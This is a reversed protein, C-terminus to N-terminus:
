VCLMAPLTHAELFFCLGSRLRWAGWAMIIAECMFRLSAFHAMGKSCHLGLLGDLQMGGISYCVGRV